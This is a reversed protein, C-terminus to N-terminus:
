KLMKASLKIMGGLLLAKAAEKILGSEITEDAEKEINIEGDSELNEYAEMNADEVKELDSEEVDVETEGEPQLLYTSEGVQLQLQGDVTETIGLDVDKLEEIQTLVDLLAAPTFLLDEM